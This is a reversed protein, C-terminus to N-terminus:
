SGDAVHMGHGAFFFWFTDDPKVQNKLYDFRYAINGRTPLADSSNCTLTFIHDKPFGCAVRLTEALVHVDNNTGEAM